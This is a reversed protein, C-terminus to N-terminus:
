DKHDVIKLNRVRKILTSTYSNGHLIDKYMSYMDELSQLQYQEISENELAVICASVISYRTQIKNIEFLDDLKGILEKHSTKLECIDVCNMNVKDNLDQKDKRLKYAGNFYRYGWNLVNLVTLILGITLSVKSLEM